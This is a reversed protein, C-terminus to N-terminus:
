RHWYGSAQAVKSDPQALAPALILLVSVNWAENLRRLPSVSPCRGLAGSKRVCTEGTM